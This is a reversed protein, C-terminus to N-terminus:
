PTLAADSSRALTQAHGTGGALSGLDEIGDLGTVQVPGPDERGLVQELEGVVVDDAGSQAAGFV